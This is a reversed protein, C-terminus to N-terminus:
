LYRITWFTEGATGLTGGAQTTMFCFGIGTSFPIGSQGFIEEGVLVTQGSPIPIPNYISASAGTPTTTANVFFLWRTAANTNHFWGSFVNGASGKITRANVAGQNTDTSACYTSVALPKPITAIVGRTNDEAAPAFQEAGRLYGASTFQMAAIQGNALVLDPTNYQGVAYADLIDATTSSPGVRGQAYATGGAGLGVVQLNGNADVRIPLWLTGTADKAGWIEQQQGNM